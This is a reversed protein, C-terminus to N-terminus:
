VIRAFNTADFGRGSQRWADNIIENVISVRPSILARQLCYNANERVSQRTSSNFIPSFFFFFTSDFLQIFTQNLIADYISQVINQSCIYIYKIILLFFYTCWRTFSVDRKIYRSGQSYINDLIFNSWFQWSLSLLYYTSSEIHFKTGRLLYLKRNSLYSTLM